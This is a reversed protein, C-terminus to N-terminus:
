ALRFSAFLRTCPGSDDRYRCFLQYERRGVLVFAIREERAGADITYARTRRGAVTETASKTVRAHERAALQAAVTDLERTVRGFLADSYPRRLAFTQVSLLLDGDRAEVGRPGRRVRASAPVGFSAGHTRLTRVPPPPPGGGCGALAATAAAVALARAPKHGMRGPILRM